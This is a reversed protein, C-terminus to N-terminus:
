DKEPPLFWYIYGCQECVYCHASANAWELNFFTAVGTHLQARRQWFRSHQCIACTLAKGKVMAAEPEKKDFM